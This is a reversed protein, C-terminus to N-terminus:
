FLDIKRKLTALLVSSCAISKLRRSQRLEESFPQACLAFEPVRRPGNWLPQSDHSPLVTLRELCYVTGKAEGGVTQPQCGSVWEVENLGRFCRDFALQEAVPELRLPRPHRGLGFRAVRQERLEIRQRARAIRHSDVCRHQKVQESCVTLVHVFVSDDLRGGADAIRDDPFLEVFELAVAHDTGDVLQVAEAAADNRVADAEALGELRQSDDLVVLQAIVAHQYKARLSQAVVPREVLGVVLAVHQRGIAEVVVNQIM